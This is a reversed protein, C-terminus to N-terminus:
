LYKIGPNRLQTQNIFDLVTRYYSVVVKKSNGDTKWMTLFELYLPCGPYYDYSQINRTLGQNPSPRGYTLIRQIGPILLDRFDIVSSPRDDRGEFIMDMLDSNMFLEILRTEDVKCHRVHPLKTPSSIDYTVAPCISSLFNTLNKVMRSRCLKSTNRTSYRTICTSCCYCLKAKSDNLEKKTYHAKFVKILQRLRMMTITTVGRLLLWGCKGLFFLVFRLLQFIGKFTSRFCRGLFVLVFNLLQFIGKFTSRFCRGLLVLVFNLLQFIGKFTSWSCRLFFFLVFKFLKFIGTVTSWSCRGLLTVVLKLFQIDLSFSTRSTITTVHPSKFLVSKSDIRTVQKNTKQFSNIPTKTLFQNKISVNMNKFLVIKSFDDTKATVIFSRDFSLKKIADVKESNFNVYSALSNAALTFFYVPYTEVNRLAIMNKLVAVQAREGLSQVANMLNSLCSTVIIQPASSSIVSMIEANSADSLIVFLLRAFLPLYESLHDSPTLAKSEASLIADTDHLDCCYPHVNTIWSSHRSSFIHIDLFPFSRSSPSILPTPSSLFVCSLQPPQPFQTIRKLCKRYYSLAICFVSITTEFLQNEPDNTPNIPTFGHAKFVPIVGSLTDSSDNGISTKRSLVKRTFRFYPAIDFSDTLSISFQQQLKEFHNIEGNFVKTINPQLLISRMSEPIKCGSINIVLVVCTTSLLLTNIGDTEYAVLSIFPYDRSISNRLSTICRSIDTSADRVSIVKVSLPPLEHVYQLRHSSWVDKVVASSHLVIYDDSDSDSEDYSQSSDKPAM